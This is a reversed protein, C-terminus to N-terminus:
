RANVTIEQKPRNMRKMIAQQLDWIGGTIHVPFVETGQYKKYKDPLKELNERGFAAIEELSRPEVIVKGKEMVKQLLPFCDGYPLPEDALQIIDKKFRGNATVRYVVKDGPLTTKDLSGTIKMTNQWAGKVKLASLKYVGGVVSPPNTLNTGVGFGTIIRNKRDLEMIRAITRPTLDNTLFIGAFWKKDPDLARVSLADAYLDGSDIRLAKARLQVNYEKGVEELAAIAHKAGEITDFTDILLVMEEKREWAGRIYDKFAEKEDGDHMLTGLQIAEHSMTGLARRKTGFLNRAAQVNSTGVIGAGLVSRVSDVKAGDGATRRLSFDILPVGRASNVFHSACTAYNISGNMAAMIMSEIFWGELLNSKIKLIPENQGFVLQGEPVAWVDGRFRFQRLYALFDEEALDPYTARIFEIDDETFCLNSLQKLVQELGMVYLYSGLVTKRAFYDHVAEFAGASRYYAFLQNLHYYDVLFPSGLRVRQIDQQWYDEMRSNPQKSKM